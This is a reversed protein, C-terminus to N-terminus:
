NKGTASGWSKAISVSEKSLFYLIPENLRPSRHSPLTVDTALGRLSAIRNRRAALLLIQAADTSLNSADTPTMELRIKLAHLNRRGIATMLGHQHADLADTAASHSFDDTRRWKFHGVLRGLRLLLYGVWRSDSSQGSM